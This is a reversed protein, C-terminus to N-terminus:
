KNKIKQQYKGKKLTKKCIGLDLMEKETFDSDLLVSIRNNLFNRLLNLFVLFPNKNKIYINNIGDELILNLLEEYTIKVQNEPDIWFFNM